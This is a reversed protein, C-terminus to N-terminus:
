FQKDPLYRYETLTESAERGREQWYVTLHQIWLKNEQTDATEEFRREWRFGPVDEFEEALDDVDEAMETRLEYSKNSLL